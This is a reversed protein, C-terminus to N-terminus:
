AHKWLDKAGAVELDRETGRLDGILASYEDYLAAYEGLIPMLTEHGALDRSLYEPPFYDSRVYARDWHRRVYAEFGNRALVQAVAGLVVGLRVRLHDPVMPERHAGKGPAAGYLGDPFRASGPDWLHPWAGPTGIRKRILDPLSVELDDHSGKLRALGAHGLLLATDPASTIAESVEREFRKRLWGEMGALYRDAVEEMRGTLDNLRATLTGVRSELKATAM